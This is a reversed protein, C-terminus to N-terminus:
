CGWMGLCGWFWLTRELWGPGGGGALSVPCFDVRTLRMALGQEHRVRTRRARQVQQFRGWRGDLGVWGPLGLTGSSSSQAAKGLAKTDKLHQLIELCGGGEWSAEESTQPPPPPKGLFPPCQLRLSLPCQRGAKVARVLGACPRTGPEPCPLAPCSFPKAVPGM